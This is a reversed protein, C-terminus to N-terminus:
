REREREKERQLDSKTLEFEWRGKGRKREGQGRYVSPNYSRLPLLSTLLEFMKFSLFPKRGPHSPWTSITNTVNLWVYEGLSCM